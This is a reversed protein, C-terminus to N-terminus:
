VNKDLKNFTKLFKNLQTKQILSNEQIQTLFEPHHSLLPYAEKALSTISSSEFSTVFKGNEDCLRVKYVTTLDDDKYDTLTVSLNKWEWAGEIASTAENYLILYTDDMSWYLDKESIVAPIFLKMIFFIFFFGILLPSIHQFGKREKIAEFLFFGWTLIFVGFFLFIGWLPTSSFPITQFSEQNTLFYDLTM